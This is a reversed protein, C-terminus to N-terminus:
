GSNGDAYYPLATIVRVDHGEKKLREAMEGTYRGVGVPEPAFNIGYILIKM